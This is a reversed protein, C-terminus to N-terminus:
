SAGPAAKKEHITVTEIRIEQLPKFNPQSNRMTSPLRSLRQVLDLGQTVQGLVTVQGAWDPQPRLLIMFTPGNAPPASRAPRMVVTGAVLPLASQEAPFQIPQRPGDAFRPDGGVIYQDVRVESVQLGDYFKANALDIFSKVAIPSEKGYLDLQIVGRETHIEARYEKAPDFRPIITVVLVDSVIKDASWYVEYTGSEALEPYLQVLDVVAGYFADAALTEPRTPEEVSTKGTRKLTKGDRKVKFGEFLPTRIENDVKQDTLNRVTIRVDLSDNEYYFQQSLELRVGIEGAGRADPALAAALCVAVITAALRRGATSVM